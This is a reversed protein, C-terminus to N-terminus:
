AQGQLSLLILMSGAFSGTAVAKEQRSCAATDSPRVLCAPYNKQIYQFLLSAGKHQGILSFTASSRGCVTTVAGTPYVTDCSILWSAGLFTLILRM